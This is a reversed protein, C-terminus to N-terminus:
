ERRPQFQDPNQPSSCTQCSIEPQNLSHISRSVRRREVPCAVASRARIINIAASTRRIRDRRLPEPDAALMRHATPAFAEGAPPDIAKEVFEDRPRDAIVLDGLGDAPGQLGHWGIRRMLAQTGQGLRGPERERGIRQTDFLHTIDDPKVEIRGFSRDHQTEVLLALDLREVACLRKQGHTRPLHVSMGMVIHTVARGRKKGGEIDGGSFHDPAAKRAMASRLESFEEVGDFLCAL